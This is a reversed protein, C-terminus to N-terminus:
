AHCYGQRKSTNKSKKLRLSVLFSQMFIKFSNYIKTLVRKSCKLKAQLDKVIVVKEKLHLEEGMVFTVVSRSTFIDENNVM